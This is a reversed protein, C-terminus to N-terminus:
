GFAIWYYTYRAENIQYAADNTYWYITKRDASVKGYSSYGLSRGSVYETTLTPLYTGYKIHSISNEGWQHIGFTNGVIYGVIQM